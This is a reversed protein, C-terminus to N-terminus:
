PLGPLNNKVRLEALAERAPRVRGAEVDAFGRRIAALAEEREADTANEQEWLGLCEDLTLRDDQRSLTLDLFDRFARPDNLRDTAMPMSERITEHRRMM